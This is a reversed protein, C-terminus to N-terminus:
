GAAAGLFTWSPRSLAPWASAFREGFVFSAFVAV